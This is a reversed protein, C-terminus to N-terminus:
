SGDDRNARMASVRALLDEGRDCEVIWDGVREMQEAAIAAGLLDVLREATPAGFKIAAHRRLRALGRAREQQIGQEIGRAVNEARFEEFWKGLRAQSVTTM